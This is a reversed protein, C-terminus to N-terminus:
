KKKLFFRALVGAGLVAATAKWHRHFFGKTKDAAQEVKKVADTANMKNHTVNENM